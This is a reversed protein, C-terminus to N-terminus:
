PFHSLQEPCVGLALSWSAPALLILDECAYAMAPSEGCTAKTTTTQRTELSGETLINLQASKDRHTM